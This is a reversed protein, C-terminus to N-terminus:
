ALPLRETPYCRVINGEKIINIYGGKKLLWIHYNIGRISVDVFKSIDKQSIGPKENIADLIEKQLDDLEMAGTDEICRGVPYFRRYQGIKESKILGQKELVTLHYVVSGNNLNLKMKIENYHAGPHARIYGYIMGRTFNDLVRDKKIRTYLPFLLYKFFVFEGDKRGFIFSALSFAMLVALLYTFSLSDRRIKEDNPPSPSKSNQSSKSQFFSVVEGKGTDADKVFIEISKTYVKKNCYVTLLIIHNGPSLKVNIKKGEGIKGDISSEWVCVMEGEYSVEFDIYETWYYSANNKPSIINPYINKTNSVYFKSQKVFSYVGDWARVKIVHWGDKLVKTDLVFSWDKTAPIRYWDDDDISIEVRRVTRQLSKCTGGITVIGQLVKGDIDIMDVSPPITAEKVIINMSVEDSYIMGDFARIKIEYVGEAINELSLNYEFTGRRCNIEYWSNRGFKIQVGCVRDSIVYGKILVESAYEEMFKPSEVVVKPVDNNPPYKIKNGKDDEILARTGNDVWILKRISDIKLNILLRARVEGDNYRMIVGNECYILAFSGSPSWTIFKISLNVDTKIRNIFYRNYKLLTGNEAGMLAYKGSPHWAVITVRMLTGNHFVKSMENM